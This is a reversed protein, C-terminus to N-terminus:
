VRLRSSPSHARRDVDVRTMAAFLCASGLLHDTSASGVREIGRAFPNSKELPYNM